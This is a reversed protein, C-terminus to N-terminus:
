HGPPIPVLLVARTSGDPLIGAGIMMGTDNIFSIEDVWIESAPTILTNVDVIPKGKQWYFGRFFTRDDPDPGCGGFGGAVDGRSNITTATGRTCPAVLGLDTMGGKEWLFPHHSGVVNTTRARGVVQGADNIAYADSADGGLTGLDTMRSNSWLFAHWEEDGPLLSTGVVEGRANLSKGFPGDAFSAPTALTGGLSGLDQMTGNRWLFPHVTPLGTTVNIEANTYSLGAIESNENIAQAAADNGGLTGLDSLSGDQWLFARVQQGAPLFGNMFSAVEPDEPIMNTAYGAVQGRNNVTTAWGTNGGFTGLDHINRSRDWFVPRLQPFDVTEDILGNESAGVILGSGSIWVPLSQNTGPLAGLDRVLGNADSLIGHWIFEDQLTFPNPDLTDTSAIAIAEGRNNLTVAPGVQGSNPGGLTPLDILRYRPYGPPALMTPSPSQKQQLLRSQPSIGDREGGRARSVKKPVRAQAVGGIFVLTGVAIVTVITQNFSLNKM